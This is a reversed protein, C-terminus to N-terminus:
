YIKVKEGDIICTFVAKVTKGGIPSYKVYRGTINRNNEGLVEKVKTPQVSYIPSTISCIYLGDHLKLGKDTFGKSIVTGSKNDQSDQAFYNSNKDRLSIMLKMNDPLNTEINFVLTGNTFYGNVKLKVEIENGRIPHAELRSDELPLPDGMVVYKDNYYWRYHKYKFGWGALYGINIEDIDRDSFAQGTRSYSEKSYARVIEIIPLNFKEQADVYPLCEIDYISMNGLSEYYDGRQQVFNYIEGQEVNPNSIETVKFYFDGMLSSHEWSLQTNGSIEDLTTRVMKFIDEIKKNPILLYEKLIGTYLGNSGYGDSATENPSTSYSIFSGKPANSFAAFGSHIYGRSTEVFPNNRCADLIVINTKDRYISIKDLYDKMCYSNLIAKRKSDCMFDVPILYNNGDIQMGHGAFYLLSVNYSDIKKFFELLKSNMTQHTGNIVIEVEFDLSKLISSMDNADNVPNKLKSAYIYDSNGIVLAIRSSMCEEKEWNM